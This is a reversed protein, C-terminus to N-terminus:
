MSREGAATRAQSRPRIALSVGHFRLREIKRQDAIAAGRCQEIGVGAEDPPAIRAEVAIRHETTQKRSLFFFAEGVDNQGFKDFRLGFILAVRGDDGRREGRAVAGAHADGIEGRTVLIEAADRTRGLKHPDDLGHRAQRADGDAEARRLIVAFCAQATQHAAVVDAIAVARAVDDAEGGVSREGIDRLFRGEREGARDLKHEAHIFGEGAIEFGGGALKVFARAIVPRFPHAPQRDGVIPLILDDARCDRELEAIELLGAGDDGGVGGRDRFRRFRSAVPIIAEAPQAVGIEHDLCEIADAGRARHLIEDGENQRDGRMFFGVEFGYVPDDVGFVQAFDDRGM